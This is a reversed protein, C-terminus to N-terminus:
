IGTVDDIITNIKTRDAGRLGGDEMWLTMLPEPTLRIFRKEDSFLSSHKHRALSKSLTFSEVEHLTVGPAKIM